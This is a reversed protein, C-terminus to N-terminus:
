RKAPNLSTTTKKEGDTASFNSEPRKSAHMEEGKGVKYNKHIDM